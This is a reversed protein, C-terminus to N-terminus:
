QAVEPQDFKVYLPVTVLLFARARLVKGDPLKYAAVVWVDGTNNANRPRKPNPGDVNPTFLGNDDLTGVYDKDNDDFTATYEEVSWAVEIPGLNLDDKTDPKGDAGNHFAVAEFQQFQKPFNAGGVRAMGAQPRVKIADIKDYVVVAAERVAGAVGVDRPGVVADKAVDVEVQIQDSAGSVVRKVALGNGFDLASAALGAPFNAGYIRVTRTGGTQVASRDLGLVVPDNGIRVLKVDVGTEEYAGTFWRGTLERQTRDLFMVERLGDQDASSEHSRGRWQFGTYILAKGQRTITKGSKVEVYRTETQFEDSNGAQRIIMEGYLPGRGPQYGSFAWRGELKPARMNASWASWEPTKLALGDTLKPLVVEMPHRNDPPRGDPGPTTQPPGLRRFAQFDSLPYYGRHMAILLEWEGKSRRQSIVRGLSHCKSCVQDVDKDSYHYDISRKEAEFAAARAEEPALGLNTALYKLVERAEAPEIQLGNLGIMRKITFEWGEPTTRRWSLRTMRQKDDAKHCPSCAKRVADSLIPIGSEIEEKEKESMEKATPPAAPSAAPPAAPPQQALLSLSLAAASVVVGILM